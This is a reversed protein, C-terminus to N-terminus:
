RGGPTFPERGQKGWLCPASVHPDKVYDLWDASIGGFRVTQGRLHGFAKAVGPDDFLRFAQTATWPEWGHAVFSPALTGVCEGVTIPVPSAIQLGGQHSFFSM